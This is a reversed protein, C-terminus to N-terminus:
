ILYILELILISYYQYTTVINFGNMKILFKLIHTEELSYVLIVLYIISIIIKEQNRNMFFTSNKEKGQEENTLEHYLSHINMTKLQNVVDSHNWWRDWVDWQANSNLDGCIITAKTAIATNHLQLYKWLQGIYQFTPSNAYKTWVALLQFDDNIKLPLFLELNSDEWYLQELKFQEKAFVGLGKNKNHGKWIRNPLWSDYTRQSKEESECEQIIYIDADIEKLLEIKKRFAGNCNWTLIKM